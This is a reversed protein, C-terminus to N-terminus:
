STLISDTIQTKSSLAHAQIGKKTMLMITKPENEDENGKKTRELWEESDHQESFFFMLNTGPFSILHRTFLRVCWWLSHYRFCSGCCYSTHRWTIRPLVGKTLNATRLCITKMTRHVDIGHCM